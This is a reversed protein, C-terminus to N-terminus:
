TSYISELTEAAIVLPLAIDSQKSTITRIMASVNRALLGIAESKKEGQLANLTVFEDISQVIIIAAQQTTISGADSLKRAVLEFFIYFDSNLTLDTLLEYIEEYSPMTILDSSNQVPADLAM